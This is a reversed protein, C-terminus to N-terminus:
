LINQVKKIFELEEETSTDQLGQIAKERFKEVDPEIIEMGEEILKDIMEAENQKVLEDNYRGAEYAVEKIIQQDEESLKELVSKKMFVSNKSLLHGTKIVYKQSEYYKNAYIVGVPNEQGDVVGQKLALYLDPFSIPTASAGVLEVAKIFGPIDPTRIKLGKLDDPVMVKTERTTLHRVGYNWIPDIVTIGTEQECEDYMKEMMPSHAVKFAHDYDRYIYATLVLDWLPLNSFAPSGPDTLMIDLSGVQIGDWLQKANGLQSNPYIQVEIRGDTRDEVNEKFYEVGKSHPHDLPYLHAFKLVVEQATIVSSFALILMLIVLVYKFVKM